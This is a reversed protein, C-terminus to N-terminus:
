WLVQQRGHGSSHTVHGDGYVGKGIAGSDTGAGGSGSRPNGTRGIGEGSGIGWGEAGSGGTGM